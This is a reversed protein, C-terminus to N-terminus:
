LAPFNRKSGFSGDPRRLVIAALQGSPTIAAWEESADVGEIATLQEAVATASDGELFQGQHLRQTEEEQLTLTPIGAIARLPPLLFERWNNPTLAEPDVADEIRFDGIATRTLASMVAASGVSEALDRGLSRVYSGSGCEILADLEPYEYRLIEFRYIDIPRAKLEVEEGRRALDYARKGNVKLASFAPPRQLIRGTLRAASEDLRARTPPEADPLMEVQGEVDETDSRRGLLFTARYTKPMRQVYEILRTAGGVCVVLVGVALPDLTGAHGVKAPKALRQVTNLARRSTVGPPKNLIIVGRDNM